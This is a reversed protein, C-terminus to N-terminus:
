ATPCRSKTYNPFTRRVDAGAIRPAGFASITYMPVFGSDPEPSLVGLRPPSWPAPTPKRLARCYDGAASLRGPAGEFAVRQVPNSFAPHAPPLRACNITRLEQAIGMSVIWWRPWEWDSRM